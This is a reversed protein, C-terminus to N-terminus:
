MLTCSVLACWGTGARQSVGDQPVCLRLPSSMSSCPWHDTMLRLPVHPLPPSLRPHKSASHSGVSTWESASVSCFGAWVLLPHGSAELSWDSRGRCWLDIQSLWSFGQVEPCGLPKGDVCCGWVGALGDWLGQVWPGVCLHPTGSGRSQIGWYTHQVTQYFELAGGWHVGVPVGSLLHPPMVSILNCTYNIIEYKM